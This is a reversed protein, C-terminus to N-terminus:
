KPETEFLLYSGAKITLPSVTGSSPVLPLDRLFTLLGIERGRHGVYRAHVYPISSQKVSEPSPHTYDQGLYRLDLRAEEGTRYAFMSLPAQKQLLLLNQTTLQDDIQTVRFLGKDRAWEVVKEQGDLALTLTGTILSTLEYSDRVDHHMSQPSEALEAEIQSAFLELPVLEEMADKGQKSNQAKQKRINNRLSKRIGKVKGKLQRLQDKNAMRLVQQGDESARSVVLESIEEGEKQLEKNYFDLRDLYEDINPQQGGSSGGRPLFKFSKIDHLKISNILSDMKQSNLYLTDIGSLHEIVFPSGYNRLPHSKVGRPREIIYMSGNTCDGQRRFNVVALLDHTPRQPSAGRVLLLGPLHGLVLPTKQPDYAISYRDNRLSTAPRNVRMLNPADNPEHELGKRYAKKLAKILSLDGHCMHFDHRVISYDATTNRETFIIHESRKAQREIEAALYTQAQVGLPSFVLLLLFIHKM